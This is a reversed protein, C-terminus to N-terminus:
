WTAFFYLIYPKGKLNAPTVTVGDFTTVRFDPARNGVKNGVMVELEQPATTEPQPSPAVAATPAAQTDQPPPTPAADPAPAPAAAPAGGGCAVVLIAAFILAATFSKRM